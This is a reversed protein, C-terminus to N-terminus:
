FSLCLYNIQRIQPLALFRHCSQPAGESGLGLCIASGAAASNKWESSEVVSFCLIFKSRCILLHQLPSKNEQEKQLIQRARSSASYILYFASGFSCCGSICIKRPWHEHGGENEASFPTDPAWVSSFWSNAESGSLKGCGLRCMVLSCGVLLHNELIWCFHGKLLSHSVTRDEDQAQHGPSRWNNQFAFGRRSSSAGLGDRHSLAVTVWKWTRLKTNFQLVSGMSLCILWTLM